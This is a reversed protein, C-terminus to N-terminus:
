PRQVQVDVVAGFSSSHDSDNENIAGDKPREVKVGRTALEAWVAGRLSEGSRSQSVPTNITEAILDRLQHKLSTILPRAAPPVDPEADFPRIERLSTVTHALSDTKSEHSIPDSTSDILQAASHN